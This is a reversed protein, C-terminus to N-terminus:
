RYPVNKIEEGRTQRNKHHPPILSTKFDYKNIDFIKEPTKSSVDSDLAQYDYPIATKGNRTHQDRQLTSSDILISNKIKLDTM